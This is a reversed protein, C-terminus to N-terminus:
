CIRIRFFFTFVPDTQHYHFRAPQQLVRGERNESLSLVCRDRYSSRLWFVFALPSWGRFPQPMCSLHYAASTTSTVDIYWSEWTIAIPNSCCKTERRKRIRVSSHSGAANSFITRNCHKPLKVLSTACESGMCKCLVHAFMVFALEPDPVTRM